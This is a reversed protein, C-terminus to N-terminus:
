DIAAVLITLDDSIPELDAFTALQDIIESATLHRNELICALLKDNANDALGDTYFVIRDGSSLGERESFYKAGSHIGVGRSLPSPSVLLQHSGGKRVLIAPPHGANSYTIANEKLDLAACIFTAWRDSPSKFNNVTALSDIRHRLKSDLKECIEHPRLPPDADEMISIQGYLDQLTFGARLGKGCVDGIHLQCSDGQEPKIRYYDGGVREASRRYCEIQLRDGVTFSARPPMLVAQMEAIMDYDSKEAGDIEPPSPPPESKDGGDTEPPSPPPESKDDGDPPIHPPESPEDLLCAPLAKRPLPRPSKPGWFEDIFEWGLVKLHEPLPREELSSLFDKVSVNEYGPADQVIRALQKSPDKGDEVNFGLRYALEIQTTKMPRQEPVQVSKLRYHPHGGKGTREELCGWGVAIVLLHQLAFLSKQSAQRLGPEGYGLARYLVSGHECEDRIFSSISYKGSLPLFNVHPDFAEAAVKWGASKTLAILRLLERIQETLSPFDGEVENVSPDWSRTDSEFWREAYLDLWAFILAILRHTKRKVVENISRNEKGAASQKFFDIVPGINSPTRTALAEVFQWIIGAEPQGDGAPKVEALPLRKLIEGVGWQQDLTFLRDIFVSRVDLSELAGNREHFEIGLDTLGEDLEEESQVSRFMDLLDILSTPEMWLRVSQMESEDRAGARRLFEDRFRRVAVLLGYLPENISERIMRNAAKLTEKLNPGVPLANSALLIQTALMASSMDEMVINAYLTHFSIGCPLDRYASHAVLFAGILIGSNPGLGILRNSWQLQSLEPDDLFDNDKTERGPLPFWPGSTDEKFNFDITLLEYNWPFHEGLKKCFEFWEGLTEMEIPLEPALDDMEYPPDDNLRLYRLRRPTM